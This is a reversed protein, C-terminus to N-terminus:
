DDKKKGCTLPPLPLRPPLRGRLRLSLVQRQDGEREGPARVRGGLADRLRRKGAEDDRPIIDFARAYEVLYM